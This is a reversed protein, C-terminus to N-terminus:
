TSLTGRRRRTGRTTSRTSSPRTRNAVGRRSRGARQDQLRDPIAPTPSISGTWTTAPRRSRATARRRGRAQHGQRGRKRFRGMRLADHLAHKRRGAHQGVLRDPRRHHGDVRRAPRRPEVPRRRLSREHRRRAQRPPRRYTPTGAASRWRTQRRGPRSRGTTGTTRLLLRVLGLGITGPARTSRCASREACSRAATRCTSSRCRSKGGTASSRRSRPCDAARPVAPAPGAAALGDHLSQCRSATVIYDFNGNTFVQADVGDVASTSPAEVRRREGRRRRDAPGAGRLAHRRQGVLRELGRRHHFRGPQATIVNRALTLQPTVSRRRAPELLRRGRAGSREAVRHPQERLHRARGLGHHAGRRRPSARRPSSSSSCATTTPPAAADWGSFPLVVLGETADM